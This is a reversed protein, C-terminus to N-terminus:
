LRSLWRAFGPRSPLHVIVVTSPVSPRATSLAHGVLSFGDIPRHQLRGQRGPQQGRVCLSKGVPCPSRRRDCLGHRPGCSRARRHAPWLALPRGPWPRFLRRRRCFVLRDAISHRLCRRDRVSEPSRAQGVGGGGCRHVHAGSLCGGPTQRHCDVGRLRIVVALGRRRM